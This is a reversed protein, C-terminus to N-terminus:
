NAGFKTRFWHRHAPSLTSGQRFAAALPDRPVRDLMLDRVTALLKVNANGRWGAPDNQRARVSAAILRDIQDLLLSHGALQWGHRQLV